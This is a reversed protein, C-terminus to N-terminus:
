RVAHVAPVPGDAVGEIKALVAVGPGRPGAGILPLLMRIPAEHADHITGDPLELTLEAGGRVRRLRLVGRVPGGCFGEVPAGGPRLAAILDSRDLLSALPADVSLATGDAELLLLDGGRRVPTARLVRRGGVRITVPATLVPSM